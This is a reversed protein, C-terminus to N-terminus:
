LHTVNCSVSPFTRSGWEVDDRREFTSDNVSAASAVAKIGITTTTTTITITTCVVNDNISLFRKKSDIFSM